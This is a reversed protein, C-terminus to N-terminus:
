ESPLGSKIGANGELSDPQEVTDEKDWVGCIGDFSGLSNCDDIRV